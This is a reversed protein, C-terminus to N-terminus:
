VPRDASPLGAYQRGSGSHSQTARYQSPSVGYARHFAQRFAEATGFGCRAAITEVTLNGGTLLHTAAEVRARRVFQAPTMALDRRFIRALHRQSVGVAEALVAASLDGALDAHVRGIADRVVSDRAPPSATFMSMQAQNGPRQLYTVLQRAVDRAVEPGVDDEIFALMLDLAATVGASTCVNDQAIFVPVPDFRVRPFRGALFDAHQWHTAAIRGDLLGTAALIGSGTCVSAVRRTERALRRVHAVLVRDEIADVYGLGGSVVLTDLPGQAHELALHAEVSIGTATRIPAGGPSSLRVEYIHRGSLYNAMQLSSVVCAIDLLEASPYGVMLVQRVSEM